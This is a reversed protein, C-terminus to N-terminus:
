TKIYTGQQEGCLITLHAARTELDSHLKQVEESNVRNLETQLRKNEAKLKETEVEITALTRTIDWRQWLICVYTILHLLYPYWFDTTVENNEVGCDRSTSHCFGSGYKKIKSCKRGTNKRIKWQSHINTHLPCWVFMFIGERLSSSAIKYLEALNSHEHVLRAHETSVSALNHEVEAKSDRMMVAYEQLENLRSSAISQDHQLSSLLRYSEDLMAQTFVISSLYLLPLSLLVPIHSAFRSLSFVSIRSPTRQRRRPSGESWRRLSHCPNPGEGTRNSSKTTASRKPGIGGNITDKWTDLSCISLVICHSVNEADLHERGLIRDMHWVLDMDNSTSSGHRGMQAIHNQLQSVLIQKSALEDETSLLEDVLDQLGAKAEKLELELQHKETM